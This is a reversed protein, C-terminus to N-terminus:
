RKNTGRRLSGFDLYTGISFNQSRYDFPTEATLLSLGGQFEIRLGPVNKFGFSSVVAPELFFKVKNGMQNLRYNDLDSSPYNTKISNFKIFSGRVAISVSFSGKSRFYFGPQVYFKLVDSEHFYNGYVSSDTFNFKGFGGGGFVQFWANLNSNMPFYYGVGLETLNRRYKINVSDVGGTTREWRQMHAAQLAWHDSLAYAGQVDIGNVSNNVTEDDEIRDGSISTSYAAGIKGDGKATLVPVNHAAPAYAYRPTSCSAFIVISLVLLSSLLNRM